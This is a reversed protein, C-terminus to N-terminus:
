MFASSSSMNTRLSSSRSAFGSSVFSLTSYSVFRWIGTQHYGSPLLHLCWAAPIPYHGQEVLVRTKGSGAGASVLLSKERKTIATKQEPTFDM